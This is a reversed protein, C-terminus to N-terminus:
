IRRLVSRLSQALNPYGVCGFVGLFAFYL